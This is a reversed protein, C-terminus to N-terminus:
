YGPTRPRPAPLCRMTLLSAVFHCWLGREGVGRARLLRGRRQDKENELLPWTRSPRSTRTPRLRCARRRAARCGSQAICIALRTRESGISSPGAACTSLRATTPSGSMGGIKAAEERSAGDLVSAVALLLRRAQAADSRQHAFRRVEGPTYDTRGCRFLRAM